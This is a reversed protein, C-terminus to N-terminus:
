RSLHKLVSNTSQHAFYKQRLQVYPYGIFSLFHAPKSFSLIEYWVQNNEDLEISFREEGALLHGQLTGSGFGFSTSVEETNRKERVYVVQLPMMIWPLFEKVCVCFKAGSQIPTSPDVFTWKLGFHRWGQLAGKGKEYTEVGTGLLVRAHNILFGDKSLENDEQLSRISKASAGRFKADYNFAGSKNVCAKQEQSSPRVWCLFVM